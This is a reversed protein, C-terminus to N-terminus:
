RTIADQDDIQVVLRGQHTGTFLCNFIDPIHEFGSRVDLDYRLRGDRIWVDIDRLAASARAADGLIDTVLFGQIRATNVVLNWLNSPGPPLEKAGYRAIMGCLAVRGHKRVHDLSAELIAGGVNEFVVDVGDPLAEGIAETLPRAAKYDICADYGYCEVARRCKEAGGAIGVVRSAGAIRAMQGVLSGVAGAAGSVLVTEGERLGAIAFLGYHATLGITGLAHTYVPLPYGFATPVPFFQGAPGVVYDSWAGFGWVPDGARRSPHRSAIVEGLIMGRIVGGVAIPVGYGPDPDMFNRITPDMCILKVRVLAEGDAPSPVPTSALELDDTTVPGQPRRRLLWQRNAGPASV